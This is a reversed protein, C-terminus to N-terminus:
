RLAAPVAAARDAGERGGTARGDIAAGQYVHADGRQGGFTQALPSTYQVHGARPTAPMILESAHRRKHPYGTVRPLTARSFATRAISSCPECSRAAKQNRGPWPPVCSRYSLFHRGRAAAEIRRRRCERNFHETRPEDSGGLEVGPRM